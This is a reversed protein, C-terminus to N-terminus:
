DHVRHAAAVVVRSLVVDEFVALETEREVFTIEGLADLLGRALEAEDAAAQVRGLELVEHVEGDVALDLIRRGPEALVDVVAPGLEDARGVARQHVPQAPEHEAGGPEVLADLLALQVDHEVLHRVREAVDLRLVVVLRDLERGLRVPLAHRVRPLLQLALQDARAKAIAEAGADGVLREPRLVGSRTLDLAPFRGLATREADLTAVTTEGGVPAAATAVVTLSGGDTINRAAALARRAAHPPLHELTDILVVADGGRAAVRRGLEIAQEVAQALADTSAAFSLAAGPEVPGERWEGIEEPRVGALVLSVDVGELGALAGALRRLAETKGSRAPGALVVRSGKGFPTLWEIAKM